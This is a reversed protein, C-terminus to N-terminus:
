PKMFKCTMKLSDGNNCIFGLLYLIASVLFRLSLSVLASFSCLKEECQLKIFSQHGVIVVNVRKHLIKEKFVIYTNYGLCFINFSLMLLYKNDWGYTSSLQLNKEM